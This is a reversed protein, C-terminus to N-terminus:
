PSIGQSKPFTGHAFLHRVGDNLVKSKCSVVWTIPSRSVVWIQLCLAKGKVDPPEEGLLSGDLMKSITGAVAIPLSLTPVVGSTNAGM